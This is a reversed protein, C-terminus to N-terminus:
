LSLLRNIVDNTNHGDFEFLAKETEPIRFLDWDELKYHNSIQGTPLLAVVIFWGGGFCEEGDFHKKSKHVNYRNGQISGVGDFEKDDKFYRLTNPNALENFLAVNYAKRNNYVERFTHYKDSIANDDFNPITEICHTILNNIQEVVLDPSVSLDIEKTKM